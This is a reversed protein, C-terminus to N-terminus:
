RSCPQSLPCTQRISKHPMQLVGDLCNHLMRLVVHQICLVREHLAEVRAVNRVHQVDDTLVLALSAESHGLNTSSSSAEGALDAEASMKLGMKITM